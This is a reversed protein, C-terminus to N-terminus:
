EAEVTAEHISWYSGKKGATLVIKVYRGRVPRAFSVVTPSKAGRGTAAPKGWAKGDASVYVAFERPYDLESAGADLTVKRVKVELGLDLQFWDGAEMYRGASWRTDMKGDVARGAEEGRCSATARLKLKLRGTYGPAMLVVNRLMEYASEPAYGEVTYSSYGVLGATLDFRSLYVGPRGDVLVTHLYPRTPDGFLRRTRRRYQVKKIEFGPLQFLPATIAVRRPRAQFCDILLAEASEAFTESGGAADILLTGGRRVWDRLAEREALSLVLRGTGTLVAVAAGSEALKGAALPGRLELKTGTRRVLLRAFREYALPEPDCNGAHRLRALRVTRRYAGDYEGPWLSTGRSRLEGALATKDNTYAVVNVAATYADTETHHLRAQWPRVLDVDTHVALPRVGNSVEYFRVTPALRHYASYIPHDAPTATLERGPFLKGYVERVGKRFAEGDCETISFITGGQHVFTRLKYLDADSLEIRNCGTLLLIPADHWEAVPARLNIIQWHVDGEFKRSVWRTLNALARPRNNWDGSYELRNFLVPRRGRLLFLLAYATMTGPGGSHGGGPKQWAGNKEQHRVLWAAGQKYWDNRGLYKRGTALGVREVGYLGYYLHDKQRYVDAIRREIWKMGKEAAPFTINGRCDLFRAAYLNDYCVYVSALGALTMTVSPADKRQTSYSWGGDAKQHRRWYDLNIQWYNAPVELYHLAGAWVGLLGYQSTSQDTRDGEPMPAKGGSPCVYGHGGGRACAYVLRSVDKQLPERFRVDHRLAAGYALARFAVCYTTETRTKELFALARAMRPDGPRVGSELLAYTCIATPGVTWSMRGHVDRTEWSGDRRQKSWLYRTGRAIAREVAEDSFDTM